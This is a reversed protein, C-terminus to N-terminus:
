FILGRILTIRGPYDEAVVLLTCGFHVEKAKAQLFNRAVSPEAPAFLASKVNTNATNKVYIL